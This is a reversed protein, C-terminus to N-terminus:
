KGVQVHSIEGGSKVKGTKIAEERNAHENKVKAIQGMTPLELYRLVDAETKITDDLYELLFAIGAAAMLSVVFALIVNLTLKNNVPIPEKSPNVNALNLITVNQVNFITPIQEKFVQTVANVIGAAKEYSLDQVAMTMVQTNNVSSVKVKKILDDVSMGFEPHQNSVAEMIAPTKIVEKYTEILRLNANVENLDLDNTSAGAAATRNVVIKTSAQYVPEIMFYSYLGAAMSCIVVIAVIMWKRKTIIRIYDRLELEIQM